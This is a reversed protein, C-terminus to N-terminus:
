TVTSFVTIIFNLVPSFYVCFLIAIVCCLVCSIRFCIKAGFVESGMVFPNLSFRVRGVPPPLFPDINPDNRGFGVPKLEAKEIPWIQVSVLCQGM